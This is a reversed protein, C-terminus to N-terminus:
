APRRTAVYSYFNTAGFYIGEDSRRMMADVWARAEGESMAGATPLLRLMSQLGPAFFDAKGIDAVVYAFSAELVLDAERLLGPMDRMVRPNTVMANIIAEDMAKAKAPDEAGGYTLSAYDGDFIGVMGGPKVIRAIEKLAARPDEVHSILTHAVVADFASGPLNLSQSDGTRFEVVKGIGEAAAFRTAAMTLYPSRDIGTVRGAFGKRRAIARSVVGTGCGLDLVSAASDIRMVTLYENMMEIFRPHKGRAELRMAVADLTSDDLKDTIRYVDVTGMCSGKIM